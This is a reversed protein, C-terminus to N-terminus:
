LRSITSHSVDYSRAIDTLTEDGGDRQANEDLRHHFLFEIRHQRSRAIPPPTIRHL